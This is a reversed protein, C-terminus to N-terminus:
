WKSRLGNPYAVFLYQPAFRVLYPTGIRLAGNAQRAPNRYAVWCKFGFSSSGMRARSRKKRDEVVKRVSHHAAMYTIAGARCISVRESNACLWDVRCGIVSVSIALCRKRM